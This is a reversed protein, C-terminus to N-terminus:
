DPGEFIGFILLTVIPCGVDDPVTAATETSTQAASADSVVLEAVARAQQDVPEGTAGINYHFVFLPADVRLPLPDILDSQEVQAQGSRFTVTGLDLVGLALAKVLDLPGSSLFVTALETSAGAVEVGYVRHCVTTPGVPEETCTFYFDGFSAVYRRHSACDIEAVEGDALTVDALVVWPESPCPPCTRPGGVCQLADKAPSPMDRYSEPLEELVRIAYGDRLRSYECETEDCGCGCSVVRVPRTSRECYRVALYLPRGDPRAPRVDSCWPDAPECVAFGDLDERCLDVSVEEPILIEDGYPGLIYGAELAIRCGELKRVRAGCVIGWGHLLRNHRRLKERFYRQDQTLDDPGVLQRPFFRTRELSQLEGTRCEPCDALTGNIAQTSVFAGKEYLHSSM